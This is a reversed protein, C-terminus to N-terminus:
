RLRGVGHDHLPGVTLGSHHWAEALIPLADLTAKWSGSASTIDSDHLLVTAGPVFTRGVTAAVSAGTSDGRWDRGWTTWLVLELRARRAAVLSSASLAGYPPRFWRPSNGTVDEVTQRAKCVDPVTWTAPRRLHSTHRDGHIGLEHGRAVIERTLGRAERVRSGLVFFTAKWGLSDLEELVQPTSAPDPGDDFTLAVHDARGVGSLRPLFRCRASRWAVAGPLFHLAAGGALAVGATGIARGSRSRRQPVKGTRAESV